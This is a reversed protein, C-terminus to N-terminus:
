NENEELWKIYDNKFESITFSPCAKNAFQNHCYVDNITLNFHDLLTHVVQCMTEKQEPTRTDKPKNNNDLGGIYCIGIATTNHGLCHAGDEFLERGSELKGDICIVYHYGIKKWGKAKHWKDIDAATFTKGEVTASCHLIIEKVIM